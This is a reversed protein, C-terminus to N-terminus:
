SAFGNARGGYSQKGKTEDQKAKNDNEIKGFIPHTAARVKFTVFETVNNITM